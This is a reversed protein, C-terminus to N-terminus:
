QYHNDNNHVFLRNKSIEIVIESKIDIYFTRDLYNIVLGDTILGFGLCIYGRLAQCLKKATIRRHYFESLMYSIEYYNQKNTKLREM